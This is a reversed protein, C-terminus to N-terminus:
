HLVERAHFDAFERAVEMALYNLGSENLKKLESLLTTMDEQYQNAANLAEIFHDYHQPLQHLAQDWDLELVPDIVGLEYLADFVQQLNGQLYM